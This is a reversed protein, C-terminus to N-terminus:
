CTMLSIVCLMTNLYTHLNTTMLTADIFHREHTADRQHPTETHARRPPSWKDAVQAPFCKPDVAGQTHRSAGGEGVNRKRDRGKRPTESCYFGGLQWRCGKPTPNRHTRPPSWKDTAQPPFCSTNVAGQTYRSAGGEGINRKKDWGKGLTESCYFGGLAVAAWSQNSQLGGWQQGVGIVKWVEGGGSGCALISGSEGAADLTKWWREKGFAANDADEV